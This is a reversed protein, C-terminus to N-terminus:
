NKPSFSKIPSVTPILKSYLVFDLSSSISYCLSIKLPKNNSILKELSTFVINSHNMNDKFNETFLIKDEM